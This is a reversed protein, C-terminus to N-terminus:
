RPARAGSQKILQREKRELTGIVFEVVEEPAVSQDDEFYKNLAEVLRKRSLPARVSQRSRHIRNENLEFGDVDNDTMIKLLTDSHAQREKRLTRLEANLARIAQDTRQWSAIAKLVDDKTAMRELSSRSKLEKTALWRM